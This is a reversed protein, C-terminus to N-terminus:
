PIWLIMRITTKGIKYIPFSLGLLIIYFCQNYLGEKVQQATINPLGIQSSSGEMIYLKVKKQHM